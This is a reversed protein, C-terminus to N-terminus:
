HIPHDVPRKGSYLRNGCVEDYYRVGLSSNAVALMLYAIDEDGFIRWPFGIVIGM